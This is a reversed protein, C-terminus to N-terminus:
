TQFLIFLSFTASLVEKNGVNLFNFRYQLLTITAIYFGSFIIRLLSAKKVISENRKVPLSCMVSNSPPELGLTLAPPGDMIVNIWLLQLTNFPTKFGFLISAVIFLLASM